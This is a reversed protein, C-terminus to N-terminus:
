IYSSENVIRIFGEGEESELRPNRAADPVTPIAVATPRACVVVPVDSSFWRSGSQVNESDSVSM